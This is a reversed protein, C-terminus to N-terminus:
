GLWKKIKKWVQLRVFKFKKRLRKKAGVIHAIYKLVKPNRVIDMHDVYDYAKNKFPSSMSSWKHCVVLSVNNVTGDGHGFTVDPQLGITDTDKNFDAKYTFKKPTDVKDGYLCHTPVNPAPYNLNIGQVRQFFKYGNKYNKIKSFLDKYDNATYNKSPTSVLVANGFVSAKPFLWPLSEFSRAIPVFKKSIKKSVILFHEAIGHIQSIATQLSAVGGSWAASLTIYAHIYKDKWAQNIGRFGTLFHLSVIGGMSHVVLTVKTRGTSYYMDEVLAKLRHLYGRKELEDTFM